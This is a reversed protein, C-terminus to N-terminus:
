TEKHLTFFDEIPLYDLRSKVYMNKVDPDASFGQSPYFLAVQQNKASPVYRAVMESLKATVCENILLQLFACEINRGLARCSLLLSDIEVRQEKILLIACGVIGMDGFRDSVSLCFVWSDEHRIFELLEPESYRKCTLNFQNTKQTQQALRVADNETASHFRLQMNLSSLYREPSVKEQLEQRQKQAQYMQTRSLDESTLNARDFGSFCALESAFLSAKTPDLRFATVQPLQQQVLGVEFESDDVFVMSDLGINLENAIERLNSAKDQWNIRAAAIHEKRLVMDPHEEFVQWVDEQNNKSCLAIIVGRDSLSKIMCQFARYENGPYQLGLRLGSVGDEGVVGGWLTNDCDLVLCKKSQNQAAQYKNMLYQSFQSLAQRSMPARARYWYRWDFFQQEGIAKLVKDSQLIHVKPHAQALKQIRQNLARLYAQQGSCMDEDFIGFAMANPIEFDNWFAMKISSINSILDFVLAVQSLIFEAERAKEEETLSTFSNVLKDALALWHNFVWLLDTPGSFLVENSALDQYIQDLGGFKLNLKYDLSAAFYSLPVQVAEVTINRLITVNLERTPTLQKLAAQMDPLPLIPKFM